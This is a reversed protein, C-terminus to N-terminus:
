ANRYGGLAEGLLGRQQGLDAIGQGILGEQRNLYPQYSGIGQQALQRAQQEYNSLGATGQLIAPQDLYSKQAAQTAQNILGPTDSSGFYLERLAPDSIVEDRTISNLVPNMPDAM